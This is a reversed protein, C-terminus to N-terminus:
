ADHGHRSITALHLLVEDAGDKTSTLRRPIDGLTQSFQDIWDRAATESGLVNTAKDLIIQVFMPNGRPDVVFQDLLLTRREADMNTYQHHSPPLAALWADGCSSPYLDPLGAIDLASNAWLNYYAEPVYQDILPSFANGDLCAHALAHQMLIDKEGQSLRDEFIANPLFGYFAERDNERRM